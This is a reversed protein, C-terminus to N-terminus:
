GLNIWYRRTNEGDVDIINELVGGNKEIIKASAINDDDCTILVKKYGKEKVLELFLRLSEGAYGKKRESPRVGYGIHGGSKLLFENLEHRFHICGIIKDSEDLTFYLTAPVFGKERAKETKDEEWLSLLEQYNQTDRKGSAFPIIKEKSKEWEDMYDQYSNELSSNPEIFKLKM